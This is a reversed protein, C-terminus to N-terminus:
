ATLLITVLGLSVGDAFFEVQVISGDADSATAELALPAPSDLTLGNAPSLWRV